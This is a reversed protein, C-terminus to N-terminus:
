KIKKGNNYDDYEQKTAPLCEATIKGLSVADEIPYVRGNLKVYEPMDKATKGQWWYKHKKAM